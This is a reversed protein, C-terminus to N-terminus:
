NVASHERLGAYFLWGVLLGVVNLSLVTLINRIREPELPYDAASPRVVHELYLQQRRADTHAADLSKVAAALSAKAFERDLVLREFQSFKSALGTSSDSVKLREYKIQDEIASARRRLAPLNPSSVAAVEIEGIQAEVRALESSLVGILETVIVSSGAPDIILESNRFRTLGTQAEILQQERQRVRDLSVKIADEQIRSNIRNVALEALGLLEEAILKSDDPRFARVKLTTIGTSSKYTAQIMWGLFRHFEEFTNGYLVSPYRALFDAGRRQYIERLPVKDQLQRMADRSALFSHVAYVDDNSKTLGTMQLIAGFNGGSLSREATRLVFQAEAVYRDAALVSYYLLALLSPLFLILPRILKAWRRLGVRRNGSRPSDSDDAPAM